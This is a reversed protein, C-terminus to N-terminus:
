KVKAKALMDDFNSIFRNINGTESWLFNEFKKIEAQYNKNKNLMGGEKPRPLAEKINELEKKLFQAKTYMDKLDIVSGKPKKILESLNRSYMEAGGVGGMERNLRAISGELSQIDFMSKRFLDDLKTGVKVNGPLKNILTRVENPLQQLLPMSSLGKSARPMFEKAAVKADGKFAKLISDFIGEDVESENMVRKVIRALDAETLKVVKKM